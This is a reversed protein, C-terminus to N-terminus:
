EKLFKSTYDTVFNSIFQEIFEENYSTNGEKLSKYLKKYKETKKFLAFQEKKFKVFEKHTYNRAENLNGNEVELLWYNSYESAYGMHVYNVMEGYPLILIGSYWDILKKKGDPFVQKYASAWKSTYSEETVDVSVQIQIDKAYLKQDEIQFHAIYGRWLATSVMGKKPRKEPYKEFYTELPNANLAYEKGKFVIRDPTQGTLAKKDSTFSLLAMVCIIAFFKKM